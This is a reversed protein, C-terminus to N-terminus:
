SFSYYAIIALAVGALLNGGANPSGDYHFSDIRSLWGNLFVRQSSDAAV